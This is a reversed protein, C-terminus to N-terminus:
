PKGKQKQLRISCWICRVVPQSGMCKPVCIVIHFGSCQVIGFNYKDHACMCLASTHFFSNNSCKWVSLKSLSPHETYTAISHFLNRRFLCLNSYDEFSICTERTIILLYTGDNQVVFRSNGSLFDMKSQFITLQVMKGIHILSNAYLFDAILSPRRYRYRIDFQFIVKRCTTWYLKYPRLFHSLEIFICKQSVFTCTSNFCFKGL